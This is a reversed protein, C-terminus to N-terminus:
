PCDNGSAAIGADRPAVQATGLSDYTGSAGCNVARVLFWQNGPETSIGPLILTAAVQNDALCRKTAVAFDGGTNRLDNLSGSVVDFGPHAAVASWRLVTNVGSKGLL